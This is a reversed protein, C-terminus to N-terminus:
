IIHHKTKNFRSSKLRLIVQLKKVVDYIQGRQFLLGNDLLQGVGMKLCVSQMGKLTRASNQDRMRVVVRDM